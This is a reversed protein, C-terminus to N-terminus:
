STPMARDMIKRRSTEALAADTDFVAHWGPNKV